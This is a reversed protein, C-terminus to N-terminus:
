PTAMTRRTRRSTATFVFMLAAAVLLALVVLQERLTTHWLMWALV